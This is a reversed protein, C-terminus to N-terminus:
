ASSAFFNHRHISGIRSIAEKVKEILIREAKPEILKITELAYKIGRFQSKLDNIGVCKGNSEKLLKASLNVMLFSLNAANEVGAKTTTMFDELGFHQKADRFNFEIQFRLGYYEILKEWDLELDSSFLIAHGVKESKLKIKEIIVVNLESGFSKSLLDGQYYNTVLDGVRESKKLCKKPLQAYNIKEGYKKRAGRGSYESKYKEYLGADRRLKSILHLDNGRAMLVAQHHGRM